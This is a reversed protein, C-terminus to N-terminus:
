LADNNPAATWASAISIHVSTSPMSVDSGRMTEFARSMSCIANSSADSSADNPAFTSCGFV